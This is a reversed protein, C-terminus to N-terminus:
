NELSSDPKGLCSKANVLCSQLSVINALTLAYQRAADLGYYQMMKQDVTLMTEITQEGLKESMISRVWRM